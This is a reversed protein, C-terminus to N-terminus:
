TQRSLATLLEALRDCSESAGEEMGSQLMGDRDEVTDFLDTVTLKTKGDRAEFTATELLVHGMMGEFEFTYVLREPAQIERYRGHFAYENGEADHQLYRWVSGPAVDMEEVTTTLRRPGWWKPVLDPETYARFVVEPPADFVREMVIERDSPLTFTTANDDPQHETM